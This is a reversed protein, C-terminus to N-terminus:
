IYIKLFKMFFAIIYYVAMIIVFSKLVKNDDDENYNSKVAFYLLVTSIVSCFSSFTSTIRSMDSSIFTLLSIAEAVIVPIKAVIVSSAITLFSKKEKKNFFFIIGGLLVVIFIPTLLDLVIQLFYKFNNSYLYSFTNLRSIISFINSLLIIAIWLSLLIMAVKKYQKESSNTINKLEDMPTKFFSTVFKKTEATDEKFNVNKITDKVESITSSAEKKLDEKSTNNVQSNKTENTENSSNQSIENNEDM